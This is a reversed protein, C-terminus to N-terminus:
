GAEVTAVMDRIAQGVLKPDDVHVYHGCGDATLHISRTSLAALEEQMERWGPVPQGATIVTLPLDGLDPPPATLRAMMLLEGV